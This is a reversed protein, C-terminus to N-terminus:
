PSDCFRDILLRAQAANVVYPAYALPPFELEIAYKLARSSHFVARDGQGKMRAIKTRLFELRLMDGLYAPDAVVEAVALAREGYAVNRAPMSRDVDIVALWFLIDRLGHEDALKRVRDEAEQAQQPEKAYRAIRAWYILWHGLRHPSLDEREMSPRLLRLVRQGLARLERPESYYVM